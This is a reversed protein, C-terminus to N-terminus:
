SQDPFSSRLSAFPGSTVPPWLSVRVLAFTVRPGKAAVCTQCRTKGPGGQSTLRTDRFILVYGSTHPHPLFVLLPTDAPQRGPHLGRAERSAKTM